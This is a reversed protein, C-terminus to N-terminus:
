VVADVASTPLFALILFAVIGVDHSFSVVVCAVVGPFQVALAFSVATHPSLCPPLRFARM